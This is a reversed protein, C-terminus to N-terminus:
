NSIINGHEDVEQVITIVKTTTTTKSIAHRFLCLYNSNCDVSCQNEIEGDLLFRYKEIEVELRTKIDLLMKYQERQNALDARLATLQEEMSTVQKQFSALMVAYRSNVEALNAELAGKKSLQAQLKIQLTDLTRRLESIESRSSKLTETSMVVDKNLEASKAQFWAELDRRNKDAVGEYHERIGALVISLDEQPAADVEVNVSGGMNSRLALLDEEHQRKMYILDDKLGELQMELDSRVLTLEDLVKKLGAIDAEVSQRMALENEYKVRFDDAALKANDVALFLAANVRAADGIKDQLGTITVRHATSDHLHFSTRSELFNRIKMELDANAKELSRVKDLYTALRDNLNQMTAKENVTVDLADSLDFGTGLAGASAKSIRVGAGGAGGYVSGSSLGM